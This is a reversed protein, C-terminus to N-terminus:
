SFVDIFLVKRAFMSNSIKVDASATSLYLGGVLCFGVVKHM